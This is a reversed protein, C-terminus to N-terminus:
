KDCIYLSKKPIIFMFQKLFYFHVKKSHNQGKKLIFFTM